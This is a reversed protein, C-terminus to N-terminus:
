ERRETDDSHNTHWALDSFTYVKLILALSRCLFLRARGLYVDAVLFAVLEEFDRRYRNAVVM